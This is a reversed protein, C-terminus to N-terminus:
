RIDVTIIDSPKSEGYDNYAIVYYQWKSKKPVNDNNSILDLCSNIDGIQEITSGLFRYIKYELNTSNNKEGFKRKYM